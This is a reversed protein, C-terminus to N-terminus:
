MNLAGFYTNTNKSIYMLKNYIRGRDKIQTNQEIWM